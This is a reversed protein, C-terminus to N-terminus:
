PPSYLMCKKYKVGYVIYCIYIIYGEYTYISSVYVVSQIYAQLMSVIYCIYTAYLMVLMVISIAYTVLMYRLMYLVRRLWTAHALAPPPISPSVYLIYIQLLLLM